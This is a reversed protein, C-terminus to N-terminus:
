YRGELGGVNDNQLEDTYYYEPVQLNEPYNIKWIKLPGIIRGNYYALPLQNEDNYVLNFYKGPKGFLYLQAFNTKRVKESVYIASGAPNINEGKISPILMLCGKLGVQNFNIEQGNAFICELPIQRQQGNNVVVVTPSDILSSGNM